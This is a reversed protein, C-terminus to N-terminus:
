KNEFWTDKLKETPKEYAQQQAHSLHHQLSVLSYVHVLTGSKIWAAEQPEMQLMDVQTTQKRQVCRFMIYTVMELFVPFELINVWHSWLPITVILGHGWVCKLSRGELAEEKKGTPSWSGNVPPGLTWAAGEPEEASVERYKYQERESERKSRPWQRETHEKAPSRGTSQPHNLRVRVKAPFPGCGPFSFTAITAGPMSGPQVVGPDWVTGSGAMKGCSAQEKRPVWERVENTREQLPPPRVSTKAAHLHTSQGPEEWTIQEGCVSPYNESRQEM